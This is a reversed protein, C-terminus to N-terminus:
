TKTRLNERSNPHLHAFTAQPAYALFKIFQKLKCDCKYKNFSFDAKALAPFTAATIGHVESIYNQQVYLELVYVTCIFLNVFSESQPPCVEHKNSSEATLWVGEFINERAVKVFSM